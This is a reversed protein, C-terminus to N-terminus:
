LDTSSGLVFNEQGTLQHLESIRANLNDVYDTTVGLANAEQQYQQIEETKLDIKQQVKTIQNQLSTQAKSDGNVIENALQKQLDIRKQTLSVVENILSTARTGSQESGSLVSFIDGSELKTVGNIATGVDVITQHLNAWQGNAKPIGVNIASILGTTSDKVVNVRAGISQLFKNLQELADDATKDINVPVTIGENEVAKCLKDIVDEM